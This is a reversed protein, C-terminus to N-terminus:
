FSRSSSVPLAAVRRPPQPRRSLFAVVFRWVSARAVGTVLSSLRFRGAWRGRSTLLVLFLPLSPPSSATIFPIQLSSLVHLSHNLPFWIVAFLEGIFPCSSVQNEVTIFIFRLTHLLMLRPPSPYRCILYNAFGDLWQFSPSAFSVGSGLIILGFPEPFHFFLESWWVCVFLSVFTFPPTSSTAMSGFAHRCVPLSPDRVVLPFHWFPALSASPAARRGSALCCVLSPSLIVFDSSCMLLVPIIPRGRPITTFTFSVPLSSTSLLM